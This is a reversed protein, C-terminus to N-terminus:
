IQKNLYDSMISIIKESALNQVYKEIKGQISDEIHQSLEEFTKSAIDDTTIIYGKEYLEHWVPDERLVISKVGAYAADKPLGGSDTVVRDVINLTKIVESYTLPEVLNINSKDLSNKEEITLRLKLRPHLPLIINYEKSLNILTKILKLRMELNDTNEARHITVLISKLDTKDSLEIDKSILEFADAMLDGVLNVNNEGLGQEILNNYDQKTVCYNHTALIDSVKRNIGEQVGVHKLTKVGAEVHGFPVGLKACAIAACLTSNTDGYIFVYNPKKSKLINFISETMKSIQEEANLGKLLGFEIDIFGFEEIIAKSMKDDYHQGTDYISQKIDRTNNLKKWLPFLKIYQPRTGVIHLIDNTM